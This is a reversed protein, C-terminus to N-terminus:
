ESDSSDDSTNGNIKEILNTIINRTVGLLKYSPKETANDQITAESKLGELWSDKQNSVLQNVYVEETQSKYDDFDLKEGEELANTEDEFIVDSYSNFFDEVDQETYSLTPTILKTTLLSLKIQDVVDDNTINNAVLLKDYADQGGVYNVTAQLESDVEDDTLEVGEKDAEQYILTNEILTEAVSEGYSQDLMKYYKSKSIREGNVVAISYDNNLYQVFFDVGIFSGLIILTLGVVKLIPAFKPGKLTNWFKKFDPKQIKINKLSIGKLSLHKKESVSAKQSKNVPKKSPKQAANKKRAM